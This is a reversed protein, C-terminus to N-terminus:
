PCCYKMLVTWAKIKLNFVKFAQAKESDNREKKSLHAHALLNYLATEQRRWGQTRENREAMKTVLNNRQLAFLVKRLLSRHRNAQMQRLHKKMAMEQKLCLFSVQRLYNKDRAEISTKIRRACACILINKMLENFWRRKLHM